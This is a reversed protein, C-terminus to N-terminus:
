STAGASNSSSSRSSCDPLLAVLTMGGAVTTRYLTFNFKDSFIGKFYNELLIKLFEANM